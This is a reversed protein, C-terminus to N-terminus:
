GRNLSRVYADFGRPFPVPVNRMDIVDDPTVINRAPNLFMGFQDGFFYAIIFLVVIAGGASILTISLTTLSGDENTFASSM